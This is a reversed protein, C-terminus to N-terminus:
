YSKVPLSTYPKANMRLPVSSGANVVQGPSLSQYGIKLIKWVLVATIDKLFIKLEYNM